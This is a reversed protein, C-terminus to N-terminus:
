HRLYVPLFAVSTSKTYSNAVAPGEYQNIVNNGYYFCLKTAPAGLTFGNAGGASNGAGELYDYHLM